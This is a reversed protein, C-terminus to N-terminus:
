TLSQGYMFCGVTLIKVMKEGTSTWNHPRFSTRPSDDSSGLRHSSRSAPSSYTADDADLCVSRSKRDKRSTVYSIYSSLCFTFSRNEVLQLTRLERSVLISPWVFM